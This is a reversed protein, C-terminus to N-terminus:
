AHQGRGLMQAFWDQGLSHLDDVSAFKEGATRKNKVFISLAGNGEFAIDAYFSPVDWYLGIEGSSGIMPTPIAIGGPLRDLFAAADFLHSSDPSSAGNGDWDDQLTAYSSIENKAQTLRDIPLAINRFVPELDTKVATAGTEVYTPVISSNLDSPSAIAVAPGVNLWDVAQTAPQTLTAAGVAAVGLMTALRM